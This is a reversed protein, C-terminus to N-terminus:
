VRLYEELPAVVAAVQDCERIALTNLMCGKVNLSFEPQRHESFRRTAGPLTTSVKLSGRLDNHLPGWRTFKIKRLKKGWLAIRTM